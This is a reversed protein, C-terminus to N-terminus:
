NFFFSSLKTTIGNVSTVKVKIANYNKIIDYYPNEGYRKDILLIFGRDNPGRIVRGMTQLVKNTAPYHYTFMFGNLNHEDYYVKQMETENTLAPFGVGVIVIGSLRDSVLDVGESFSGGIVALGLTTVQPNDIFESLFAEKDSETMLSKQLVLNINDSRFLESLLNLYQFSPVYAIYNGVKVSIAAKIKQYVDNITRERDRYYLSTENDYLLILNDPKFANPVELFEYDNIALLTEFYPKPALTASFMVVNDIQALTTNILPTANFLQLNLTFFTKEDLTSTIFLKFADNFYEYLKLLKSVNFYFDSFDESLAAGEQYMYDNSASLFNELLAKLKFPFLKVETFEERLENKVVKLERVIANIHKRIEQHEPGRLKPRLKFLDNFNLAFSYNDQVRRFVNHAEDILVIQRTTKTKFFRQLQVFPDFLYNYDGIIVDCHLSLDLQFEFPCVKHKKAAEMIIERTFIHHQRFTDFVAEKIKGFYNRAFPCEDPNCAIKDNLCMKEKANIVISKLKLGNKELLALANLAQEQGSGKATLYFVKLKDGKLFEMIAPYLVALTKGSGTPANIFIRDKKSFNETIKEIMLQQGYYINAYPFTLKALSRNREIEHAETKSYYFIYREFLNNIATQLAEKTFAYRKVEKSLDVQSMYTLSIHMRKKKNQLAYILAYCQAQALHWAANTEYFYNLDANTTKLEDITVEDGNTIVGDAYGQLYFTYKEYKFEHSLFVEVEYKENQKAQYYSHLRTGRVLTNINFIRTDLDGSRLLFDVLEHVSLHFAKNNM